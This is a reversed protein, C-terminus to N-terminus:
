IFQRSAELEELGILAGRGMIGALPLRIRLSLGELESEVWIKGGHYEVIEKSIPLGLGTGQPKDTTVDGVQKYKEFVVKQNEPSIGDGTDQVRITLSSWGKEVRVTITGEDTFKVANSILNILVQVVRDSDAVVEPLDTPVQIFRNRSENLSVRRPM